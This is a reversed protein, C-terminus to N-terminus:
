LLDQAPLEGMPRRRNTKGGRQDRAIGRSRLSSDMKEKLSSDMKEKLSSDTAGRKDIAARKDNGLLRSDMKVYDDGQTQKLGSDAKASLTSLVKLFRIKLM